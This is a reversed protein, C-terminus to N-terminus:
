LKIFFIVDHGVNIICLLLIVIMRYHRHDVLVVKLLYYGLLKYYDFLTLEIIYWYNLLYRIHIIIISLSSYGHSFSCEVVFVICDGLRCVGQNLCLSSILRIRCRSHIITHSHFKSM